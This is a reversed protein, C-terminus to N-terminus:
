KFGDKRRIDIIFKVAQELEKQPFENSVFQSLDINEKFQNKSLDNILDDALATMKVVNGFQESAEKPHHHFMAVEINAVPLNWRSLFYAGIEAHTCNEYGLEVECQYFDKEGHQKLYDVTEQFRVPFYQILLIKGIEHTIGVSSLDGDMSSNFRITYLYRLLSHVLFSHDFIGALHKKMNPSLPTQNAISISLVIDKITNLGLHIISREVSSIKVNGYFASNAVQLIRTSISVDKNIIRAIEKVTRDNNVAHLFERYLDPLTPLKEISNIIKLLDKQNLISDITLIHRINKHLSDHNWPKTFYTSAIGKIIASMVLSKEVFGSLIIRSAQPYKEKVISLFQIGDMGPMRVDSVVVDIKEKEMIELALTGSNAVLVDFTSHAFERSLAKLINLEDDVFLVKKNTITNTVTISDMMARNDM